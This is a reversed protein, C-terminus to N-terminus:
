WTSGSPPPSFPRSSSNPPLCAPQFDRSATSATKSQIFGKAPLPLRLLPQLIHFTSTPISGRGLQYRPTNRFRYDHRWRIKSLSAPAMASLPTLTKRPWNLSTLDALPAIIIPSSQVQEIYDRDTHKQGDETKRKKGGREGPSELISMGTNGRGGGNGGQAMYGHVHCFCFPFLGRWPQYQNQMGRVAGANPFVAPISPPEFGRGAKVDSGVEWFSSWFNFFFPFFPPFFLSRSFSFFPSLKDYSYRMM